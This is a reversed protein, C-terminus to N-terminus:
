GLRRGPLSMLQCFPCQPDDDWDNPFSYLGGCEACSEQCIMEASITIVIDPIIEGRQVVTFEKSTMFLWFRDRYEIAPMINVVQLDDPLDTKVRYRRDTGDPLLVRALLHMDVM